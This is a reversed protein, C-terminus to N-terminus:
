KKLFKTIKLIVSKKDIGAKKHIKNRIGYTYLFKDKIGLNLFNANKKVLSHFKSLIISGIGGNETHEELVCIKKFKKLIKLLDKDKLPKIRFLDIVTTNIKYNKLENAISLSQHVMNATSIICLDEGQSIIRFGSKLNAKVKSLIPWKGRDLRVYNIKKFNFIDRSIRKTILSDSPSYINMNVLTNMVSIDDIAHHTPGDVSYSYGAGVTIIIVPLRMVCIDLKIQEFSRLTIFTSISYIVIKKGKSSLGAATGIINQETIGMNIVQAPVNEKFKDLSPAGMDNTLLLINRDKEMKKLLENFFVDRLHMNEIKIM